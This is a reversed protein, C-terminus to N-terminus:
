FYTGIVNWPQTGASDRLYRYVRFAPRGLNDTIEAQISDKLQYKHIETVRNFQTFVMSDLRYTISKGVTLPFYSSLPESQYDLDKGGCSFILLSSVALIYLPSLSTIRM